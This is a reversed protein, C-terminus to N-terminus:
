ELICGRKDDVWRATASISIFAASEVRKNADDFSVTAVPPSNKVWARCYAEPMDMVYRCSCAASATYGTILQLDNSEYTRREADPQACGVVLALFFWRLSPRM